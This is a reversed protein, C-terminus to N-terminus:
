FVESNSPAKSLMLKLGTFSQLKSLTPSLPSHPSGLGLKRSQIQPWTYKKLGSWILPSIIWLEQWLLQLSARGGQSQRVEYKWKSLKELGLSREASELPLHPLPNIPEELGFTSREPSGPYLAHSFERSDKLLSKAAASENNRKWVVWSMEQRQVKAFGNGKGPVRKQRMKMSKIMSGTSHSHWPFFPRDQKSCYDEVLFLAQCM